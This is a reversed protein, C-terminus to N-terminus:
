LENKFIALEGQLYSIQEHLGVITKILGDIIDSDSLLTPQGLEKAVMARRLVTPQATWQGVDPGFDHVRKVTSM